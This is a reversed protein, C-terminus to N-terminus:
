GSDALQDRLGSRASQLLDRQFEPALVRLHDHRICVQFVCSIRHGEPDIEIDALTQENMIIPAVDVGAFTTQRKNNANFPSLRVLRHAGKEGQFWGYAHPREPSGHILLEVTKYGVIEGPQEDEVTVSFGLKQAHREYMRRLEAVWDNAETGGAGATLVMRCPQDDYPGSLLLELQFQEGDEILANLATELEDLLLQREEISFMEDTQEGNNTDSSQLLMELTAEADDMNRKWANVRSELRTYYSIKSTVFTCRLVYPEIWRHILTYRYIVIKAGHFHIIEFFPLLGMIKM